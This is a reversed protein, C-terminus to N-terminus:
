EDEKQLDLEFQQRACLLMGLNTWSDALWACETVDSPKFSQHAERLVVVAGM